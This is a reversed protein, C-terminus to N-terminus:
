KSDEVSVHVENSKSYPISIEVRRGDEATASILLRTPPAGWDDTLLGEIMEKGNEFDFDQASGDVLSVSMRINQM